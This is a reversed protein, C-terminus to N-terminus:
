TFIVSSQAKRPDGCLHGDVPACSACWIRVLPAGSTCRVRVFAYMYMQVLGEAQQRVVVSNKQNLQNKQLVNRGHFSTNWSAVVSFRKRCRFTCKICNLFHAGHLRWAAAVKRIFSYWISRIEVALSRPGSPNSKWWLLLEESSRIGFLSYKWQDARRLESALEGALQGAQRSM